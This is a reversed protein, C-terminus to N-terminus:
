GFRLKFEVSIRENTFSYETSEDYYKITFFGIAEKSEAFNYREEDEEDARTSPHVRVKYYLPETMRIAM